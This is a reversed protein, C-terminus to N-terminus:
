FNAAANPKPPGAYRDAHAEDQALNTKEAGGPATGLGQGTGAAFDLDQDPDYRRRGWLRWCVLAIGALLVAGAVGGIVGGVISKDKSSLGSGSSSSASNELGPSPTSAASGITITVIAASVMTSSFTDGNPATVIVVSTALSTSSALVPTTSLSDTPQATTPPPTTVPPTTTPATTPATTPTTTPATTPTTKPTTTPTLTVGITVARPFLAGLGAPLLAFPSAAVGAPAVLLGLLGVLAALAPLARGQARHLKM